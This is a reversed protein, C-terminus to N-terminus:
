SQTALLIGVAQRAFPDDEIMGLQRREMLLQWEGFLDVSNPRAPAISGDVHTMECILRTARAFREFDAGHRGAFELEILSDSIRLTAVVGPVLLVEVRDLTAVPLEHTSGVAIFLLRLSTIVVLGPTGSYTAQAMELVYEDPRAYAHLATIERIMNGAHQMRDAARAADPRVPGTRGPVPRPATLNPRPRVIRRQELLDAAVARVLTRAQDRLTPELFVPVPHHQTTV